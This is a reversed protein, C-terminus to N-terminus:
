SGGVILLTDGGDVGKIGDGEITGVEGAWSSTFWNFDGSSREVVYELKIAFLGEIM